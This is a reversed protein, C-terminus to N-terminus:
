RLLPALFNELAAAGRQFSLTARAQEVARQVFHACDHPHEILRAALDFLQEHTRGHGCLDPFILRETTGHGGICPIRALLADGAVQGPVTSSDLQFVVRHKAVARLYKPYPLRQEVIRLGGPAFGASHLLRRGRWGDFNFVTVPEGMGEALRRILLLAALHNRTPTFFERTGLLIGRKEEEPRAFDWAAEEVPYPMPIFDVRSAGASQFLAAVDPTTAIAGDSRECLERFLRVSSAKALQAAVQHAGAEKWALVVVRRERRLRVLAKVARSLDRTLLVIVARTKEPIADADRYFGGGMCAAFGHCNVPAHVAEDPKGAFDPFEQDPDRGRPCLVAIKM